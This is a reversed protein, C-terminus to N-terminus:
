SWSSGAACPYRPLVSRFLVINSQYQSSLQVLKAAARAHIGVRHGIVVERETQVIEQKLVDWVRIAKDTGGSALLTSDPSFAVARVAGRPGKLAVREQGTNADWLRVIADLGGTALTRGDPAFTVAYVPAEHELIRPERGDTAVDWLVATHDESGSALTRGDAAFAM